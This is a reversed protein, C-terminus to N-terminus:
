EMLGANRLQEKIRSIAEDSYGLKKINNEDKETIVPDTNTAHYNHRMSESDPLEMYGAFLLAKTEERLQKFKDETPLVKFHLCIWIDLRNSQVVKKLEARKLENEYDTM